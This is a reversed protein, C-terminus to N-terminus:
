KESTEIIIQDGARLPITMEAARAPLEACTVFERMGESVRRWWQIRVADAGGAHILRVAGSM